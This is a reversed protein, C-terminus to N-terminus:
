SIIRFLSMKYNPMLIKVPIQMSGNRSRALTKGGSKSFEEESKISLTLALLLAVIKLTRFLAM